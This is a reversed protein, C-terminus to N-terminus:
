ATAAETPIAIAPQPPQPLEIRFAAGGGHRNSAHIKGGHLEVIGRCIALGLGTGFRVKRHDVRYFKEFIREEDGSPFGPGSDSVELWLSSNARGAAIRIESNQPTHVAANELLNVLVQHFLLEDLYVMPLAHPVAITLRHAQLVRSLRRVVTGVLDDLPHWDRDLEMGGAELRTMDLLNSVLRNLRHAESVISEALDMRTRSPLADGSEVLTSGAGAIAALPTRLDHSVSSLLSNRLHESEAEMRADQAAVVMQDRELALALQSTSAELM